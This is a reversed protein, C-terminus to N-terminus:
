SIEDIACIVNNFWTIVELFCPKGTYTIFLTSELKSVMGLHLIAQIIHFFHSSQAWTCLVCVYSQMYVLIKWCNRLFYKVTKQFCSSFSLVKKSWQINKYIYFYWIMKWFPLTSLFEVQKSKLSLLIWNMLYTLLQLQFLRISVNEESKLLLSKTFNVM